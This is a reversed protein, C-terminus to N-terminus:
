PPVWPYAFWLQQAAVGGPNAANRLFSESWRTNPQTNPITTAPSPNGNLASSYRGVGLFAEIKGAPHFHWGTPGDQEVHRVCPEPQSLLGLLVRTMLRDSGFAGAIPM